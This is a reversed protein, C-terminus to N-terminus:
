ETNQSVRNFYDNMSISALWITDYKEKVRSEYLVHILGGGVAIDSYASMAGCVKLGRNWTLGADASYRLTLNKRRTKSAANTFFLHRGASLVSGQCYPDPLEPALFCERLSEGADVSYAAARKRQRFTNRMNLYIGRSTEAAAAENTGPVCEAGISWNEGNDDSYIIHSRTKEQGLVGHNCPVIYRGNSLRLGHCPGTAYWTWDDRRVQMSIDDPDTWSIGENESFTRYVKRPPAKGSMIDRECDCGRNSTFILCIRGSQPEILPCPNGCTNEGGKVAVRMPSWSKGGDASSRLVIDISGSDSRSHRRGECFALLRGGAAVTLVPIRFFAYGEM